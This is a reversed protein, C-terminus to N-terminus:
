RRRGSWWRGGLIQLCARLGREADGFAGSGSRVRANGSVEVGCGGGGEMRWRRSGKIWKIAVGGGGEGRKLWRGVVGGRRVAGLGSKAAMLCVPRVEERRWRGSGSGSVEVGCGEEAELGGDEVGKIVSAYGGGVAEAGGVSLGIKAQDTLESTLCIGCDRLSGDRKRVIGGGLLRDEGALDM